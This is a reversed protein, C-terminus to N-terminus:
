SLAAEASLVRRRQPNLVVEWQGLPARLSTTLPESGAYCNKKIIDMDSNCREILSSKWQMPSYWQQLKYHM